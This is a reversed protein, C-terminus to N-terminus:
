RAPKIVDLLEVVYESDDESQLHRADADVFPSAAAAGRDVASRSANASYERIESMSAALLAPIPSVLTKKHSRRAAPREPQVPGAVPDPRVVPALEPETLEASDNVGVPEPDPVTPAKPPPAAPM